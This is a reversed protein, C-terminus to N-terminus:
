WKRGSHGWALPSRAATACCRERMNRGLHGRPSLVRSDASQMRRPPNAVGAGISIPNVPPSARKGQYILTAALSSGAGREEPICPRSMPQEVGTPVRSHGGYRALATNSRAPSADHNQARM